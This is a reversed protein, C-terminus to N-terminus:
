AVPQAEAAPQADQAPAPSPGVLTVSVIGPTPPKITNLATFSVAQSADSRTGSSNIDVLTLVVADNVEYTAQTTTVTPGFTSVSPTGSNVVTTLERAAIDSAGPASFIIEYILGMATGADAIGVLKVIPRAPRPPPWYPRLAAVVRRLFASWLNSLITAM